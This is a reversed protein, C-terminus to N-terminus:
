QDDILATLKEADAPAAAKQDNDFYCWVDLGKRSWNRIAKAWEGLASKGYHGHYRGGPGHNRIYVFGATVVQPAPADHHDSICLAADHRRLVDYIDECYWSEHRFEFVYPRGKELRPIFGALREADVKMQPPLQFLVPGAKDGLLAIRAELLDLSSDDCDLRKYHTIFRAAKWAFRFGDPVTECWNRVSKESPTRYFVGNLEATPFRSAYYSLADKKKTGEPFFSGWWSEYHWGSTGIWVKGKRM